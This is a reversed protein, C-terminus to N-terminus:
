TDNKQTAVASLTLTDHASVGFLQNSTLRALRLAAVIGIAVGAMMKAGQAVVLQFIQQRQAWNWACASNMTRQGVLYSTVGYIGVCALAAFVGLLMM